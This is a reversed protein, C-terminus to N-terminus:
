KKIIKKTVVANNEDQIRVMYIGSVLSSLNIQNQDSELIKQGQINYVEVSKLNTQLDVNLIDQVPNPYMKVAVENHNFDNASLTNNTYLNTIETQSLPYNYIKLDDISGNFTNAAGWISALYFYNDDFSTFLNFPSTGMLVGNKYVKVNVGDYTYVLHMWTNIPNSENVVISNNGYSYFALTNNNIESIFALDSFIGGYSFPYNAFTNSDIKTWISVTRTSGDIPLGPIQGNVSTNNVVLASNPNNNRDNGFSTGASSAFANNGLFNTYVNDFSYEAITQKSGTTFSDEVSSTTGDDNTVEFKYYYTTNEALGNIIAGYYSNPSIEVANLQNNLNGSTLGYKVIVSSINSGNSNVFSYLTTNIAAPKEIISSIIPLQPVGLSNYNYLNSIETASLPYNYIKLDDIAGNFSDVGQISTGLNFTIDNSTNWSKVANTVLTGDVYISAMSNDKDYTVVVHKWTNATINTAHTLDNAWGYNNISSSTFSFGYAQNAAASGYSFLYNDTALTYMKIWVSVSRSNNGIPLNDLYALTGSNNLRLAKSANGNRDNEFTGLAVFSETATIDDYNNDFDFQYVLVPPAEITNYNYLNLIQTTDLAYNYIKLDDIAGNFNMEGGVGIGLKFINNNNITNWSRPASSLLTGNKYIKVNAGDYVYTFYYWTNAVSNSLATLNYSTGYGFADVQNANFSGCANAASGLGYSFTMNYPTQVTNLKAWFSVTRPTNTYPLGVMTATTGTNNINLASNANGNRDAVFSTGANSSFPNTGDINHYTNDFSYELSGQSFQIISIDDIYFIVAGSTKNIQFRFRVTSGAPVVGEAINATLLTCSTNFVSTNKAEVWNGSANIEYYIRMVGVLAGTSKYHSISINIPNGDSVYPNTSPTIITGVTNSNLDAYLSKGNCSSFNWPSFGSVAWGTPYGSEFGEQVNIQANSIGCFLVILFSFLKTRMSTNKLNKTFNPTHYQM